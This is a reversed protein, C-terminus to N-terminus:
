TRSCAKPRHGSYTNLFGTSIPFLRLLPCEGHVVPADERDIAGVASHREGPGLISMSLDSVATGLAADLHDSGFLPPPVVSEFDVGRMVLFGVYLGVICRRFPM